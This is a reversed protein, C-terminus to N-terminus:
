PKWIKISEPHNLSCLVVLQGQVTHVSCTEDSGVIATIPLSEKVVPHAAYWEDQWRKMEVHGGRIGCWGFVLATVFLSAIWLVKIKDSM